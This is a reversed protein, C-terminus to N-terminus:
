ASLEILAWRIGLALRFKLSSSLSKRHERVIRRMGGHNRRWIMFGWRILTKM